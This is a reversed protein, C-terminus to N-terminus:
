ARHPREARPSVTPRVGELSIGYRKALRYLTRRHVGLLQAALKRNWRAEELARRLHDKVVAKLSLRPGPGTAPGGADGVAKPPLGGPGLVRATSLAAAREIAHQLERVNGPWDYAVLRAMAEPAITRPPQDNAALFCALFHEALLPIDERRERLP